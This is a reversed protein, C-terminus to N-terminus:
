RSRACRFGIHDTSASPGSGTRATATLFKVRERWSGGRLVRALGSSPGKPNANEEQEYYDASYRDEVWEQVNGVMDHAGFPSVGRPYHGVPTTAVHTRAGQMSNTKKSTFGEGWPYTRGDTGRAAKEWEAETPLRLGAWRCYERAGYWTVETVPHRELDLRRRLSKLEFRYNVYRVPSQIDRIDMLINGKKDTFRGMASLFSLFKENSVEYKDILFSDLFVERVPAENIDGNYTGMEFTGAPISLMEHRDGAPNEFVLDVRAALPDAAGSETLAATKPSCASFSACILITGAALSVRTYCGASM